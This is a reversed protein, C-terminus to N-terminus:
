LGSFTVQQPYVADALIGCMGCVPVEKAGGDCWVGEQPKRDMGCYGDAGIDSNHRQLRIYGDEGWATGWSNRILWYDRGLREDHGYGAVVVAHNIVADRECGDFVGGGYPDWRSADVGVVMPGHSTLAELFPQLKNTEVRRFGDIRLSKERAESSPAKCQEGKNIDGGYTEALLLGQQQVYEFALESNAGDCGGTGGCHRPNKVCDVLQMFSLQHSRKTAIEAHMELVGVAAAAWCSGCEGQQKVFNSSNLTKRWDVSPRRSGPQATVPQGHPRSFVDSFDKTLSTWSPWESRGQGAEVQLFSTGAGASAPVGHLSSRKHGLLVHFEPRTYDAFQNVEAHWSKQPHANQRQVLKLRQNFLALRHEYEPSDPELAPRYKQRFERYVNEVKSDISRRVPRFRASAVPSTFVVVVCAAAVFAYNLRPM